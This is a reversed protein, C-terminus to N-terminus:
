FLIYDGPNMKGDGGDVVKIANETLGEPVPVNNKEPLVGGGNGYLAIDASNGDLPFGMNKLADYTIKYLGSKDIRIKFWSGNVLVSHSLVETRKQIIKSSDDVIQIAARFSVLKEYRGKVPNWRVPNVQLIVLPQKRAISFNVKIQFSTDEYSQTQLLATEASDAPVVLEPFLKASLKAETAHVAISTKFLPVAKWDPYFADEFALRYFGTGREPQVYQVPKWSIKGQFSYDICFGQFPILLVTIYLLIKRFKM